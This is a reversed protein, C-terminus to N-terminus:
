RGDQKLHIVASLLLLNGDQEYRFHCRFDFESIVLKCTVLLEIAKCVVETFYNVILTYKQNHQRERSNSYSIIEVPVLITNTQYEEGGSVM